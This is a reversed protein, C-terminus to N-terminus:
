ALEVPVPCTGHAPFLESISFPLPSSTRAGLHLTILLPHSHNRLWAKRHIPTCQSPHSTRSFTISTDRPPALINNLSTYYQLRGKSGRTSHITAQEHTHHMSTILKNAIKGNSVTIMDRADSDGVNVDEKNDTIPSVDEILRQPNEIMLQVREQQAQLQNLQQQQRKAEEGLQRLETDQKRLCSKFQRKQLRHFNRAQMQWDASRTLPQQREHRFVVDDDQYYYWWDYSTFTVMKTKKQQQWEHRSHEKQQGHGKQQQQERQDAQDHRGQRWIWGSKDYISRHHDEGRIKDRTGESTGGTVGRKDKGTISHGGGIAFATM